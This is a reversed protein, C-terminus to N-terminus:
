ETVDVMTLYDSRGKVTSAVKEFQLPGLPFDDDSARALTDTIVQSSSRYMGMPEGDENAVSLIARNYEEGNARGVEFRVKTIYVTEGIIEDVSPTQLDSIKGM